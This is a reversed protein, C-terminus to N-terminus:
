GDEDVINSNFGDNKCDLIAHVETRCSGSFVGITVSQLM